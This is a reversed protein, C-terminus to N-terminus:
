IIDNFYASARHQEPIYKDDNCIEEFKADVPKLNPYITKFILAPIRRKNGNM